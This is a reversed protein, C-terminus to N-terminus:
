RTMGMGLSVSMRMQGLCFTDAPLTTTISKRRNLKSPILKDSLWV